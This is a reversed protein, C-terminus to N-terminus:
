YPRCCLLYDFLLWFDDEYNEVLHDSTVLLPPAATYYMLLTRLIEDFQSFMECSNYCHYVTEKTNKKNTRARALCHFGNKEKFGSSSTMLQSTEGLDGVKGPSAAVSTTPVVNSNTMRHASQSPNENFTCSLLETAEDAEDRQRYEKKVYWPLRGM